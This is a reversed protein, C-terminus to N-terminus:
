RDTLSMPLSLRWSRRATDTTAVSASNDDHDTTVSDSPEPHAGKAQQGLGGAGDPLRAPVSRSRDRGTRVARHIGDVPAGAAERPQDQADDAAAQATRGWREGATSRM